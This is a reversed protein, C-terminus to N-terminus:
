CNVLPRTTSEMFSECYEAVSMRGGEKCSGTARSGESSRRKTLVRIIMSYPRLSLVQGSSARRNTLPSYGACAELRGGEWGAEMGVGPVPLGARGPRTTRDTACRVNDRELMPRRPWAELLCRTVDRRTGGM